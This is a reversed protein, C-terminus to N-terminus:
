APKREGVPCRHTPSRAGCLKCVQFGHSALADAIRRWLPRDSKVPAAPKSRLRKTERIEVLLERDTPARDRWTSARQLEGIEFHGRGRGTRGPMAPLDNAGDFLDVIGSRLEEVDYSMRIVNATTPPPDDFFM